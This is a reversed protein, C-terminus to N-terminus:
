KKFYTGAEIERKLKLKEFYLIVAGVAATILVSVAESLGDMKLINIFNSV